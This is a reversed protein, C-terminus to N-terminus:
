KDEAMEKIKELVTQWGNLERVEKVREHGNAVKDFDGQRIMLECMDGHVQVHYEVTTYNEPKDPLGRHPDFTTYILLDPSQFTIISGKVYTVTKGNEEAVWDLDSGEKWESVATCGYMYQSTHASSTLVKWIAERSADILIKSEVYLPM